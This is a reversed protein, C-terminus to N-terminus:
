SPLVEEAGAASSPLLGSSENTEVSEATESSHSAAAAVGGGGDIGDVRTPRCSSRAGILASAAHSEPATYRYRM